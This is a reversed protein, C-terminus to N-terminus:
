ARETKTWIVSTVTRGGEGKELVSLSFGSSSPASPASAGAEYIKKDVKNDKDKRSTTRGQDNDRNCIKENTLEIKGMVNEKVIM